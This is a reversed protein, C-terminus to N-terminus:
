MSVSNVTFSSGAVAPESENKLQKNLRRFKIHVLNFLNRNVLDGPNQFFNKKPTYDLLPSVASSQYM